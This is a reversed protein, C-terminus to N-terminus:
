SSHQDLWRGIRDTTARANRHLNIAHATDRIRMLQFDPSAPWFSREADAQPCAPTSCRSVDRDGFVSLVPVDITPSRPQGFVEDLFGGSDGSPMADKLRREDLLFVQEDSNGTHAYHWLVRTGPETTVYGAPISPDGAFRPDDAAPYLMAPFLPPEQDSFTHFMGTVVLGDVDRYRAAERIILSSGSSHGVTFLKGSATRMARDSRLQQVVRHLADASADATVEQDPPRDSRGSGLRDVAAVLYGRSALLRLASYRGPDIGPDWYSRNSASGHVLVVAAQPLGAAPRCLTGRLTYEAPVQVPFAVQRCPAAGGASSAPMASFAALLVALTAALILGVRLRGSQVSLM